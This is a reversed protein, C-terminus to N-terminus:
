VELRTVPPTSMYCICAESVRRQDVNRSSNSLRELCKKKKYFIANMSKGKPVPAQIALGKTTVFTANKGKECKHCHLAKQRKKKSDYETVKRNLSIDRLSM